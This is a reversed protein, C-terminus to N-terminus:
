STACPTAASTSCSRPARRTARRGHGHGPARPEGGRARAVHRQRAAVFASVHGGRGGPGAPAIGPTSTGRDHDRRRRRPHDGARARQAARPRQGALRLTRFAEIAEPAVGTMPAEPAQHGLPQAFHEVLPPCTRAGSACRRCTSRSSASGTSCTAASARGAAVARELDRNSVRRSVRTDVTIDRVGGVRRFTLDRARAAAEGPAAHKLEGIEDLYLTGGTPSSSSARRRRARTPSPARARPRVVGVRAARRAAGRLQRRHVARRPARQDDHLAKAFLDKGTGSEGQLLVTTADSAAVKRM